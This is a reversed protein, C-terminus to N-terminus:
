GFIMTILDSYIRASMQDAYVYIFIWLLAWLWGSVLALYLIYEKLKEITM